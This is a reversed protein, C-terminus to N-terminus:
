ILAKATSTLTVNSTNGSTAQALLRVNGSNIDTQFLVLEDADDTQLMAYQNFWTTSGNHLVIIKGTAYDTGNEVTYFYEAARHVTVSFYDVVSAASDSIGTVKDSLSGGASITVTDSDTAIVSVLGAGVLKVRDVQTGLTVQNTGTLVINANLGSVGAEVSVEYITNDYEEPTPINYYDSGDNTFKWRDATEDWKLAVDGDSGREVTIFADLVGTTANANLVIENDEVLVNTSNVYTVEGEVTLNGYVTLAQVTVDSEALHALVRSNTYYLNNDGEQLDDTTNAALGKLYGLTDVHAEVRANTYYLNSAEAVTDTTFDGFDAAITINGSVGDGNTVTIGLGEEVVRSILAGGSGKVIVGNQEVNAFLNELAAERTTSGTGGYGIGVPNSGLYSNGTFNGYQDIVDTTNVRIGSKVKFTM